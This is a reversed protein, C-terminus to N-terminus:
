MLQNLRENCESLSLENTKIKAVVTNHLLTIYKDLPVFLDDIVHGLLYLLETLTYASYLWEHPTKSKYIADFMAQRNIIKEADPANCDIWYYLTQQTIGILKLERAQDLTICYKNINM